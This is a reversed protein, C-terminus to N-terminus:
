CLGNVKLAEVADWEASALQVITWSPRSGIPGAVDSVICPFVEYGWLWLRSASLQEDGDRVHVAFWERIGADRRRARMIATHSVSTLQRWSLGM